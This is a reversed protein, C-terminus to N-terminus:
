EGFNKEKMIAKIKAAPSLLLSISKNINVAEIYYAIYKLINVETFWEREKLEEPLYTSNTVFIRDFMKNNYYEDFKDLGKNFLGFTFFGYIRRAGKAKLMDMVHM